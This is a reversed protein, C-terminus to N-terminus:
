IKFQIDLQYRKYDTEEEGESLNLGITNHFFTFGIKWYKFPQYGIGIEHGKADTGGGRFDSDTLAGVVADAELRRYIYRIEWSNRKKCKGIKFGAMWGTDEKEFDAINDEYKDNDKLNDEEVGHNKVYNGFLSFPIENIKFKLETHLELEKFKHAYTGDDNVNNGFGDDAEVLTEYDEMHIFHYYGTGLIFHFRYDELFNFDLTAQGGLFASDNDNKEDETKKAKREELWFGGANLNFTIPDFSYKYKVLLGEPNLDTDWILEAKSKWFFPNKMKGGILNLGKLAEPHYDFYALDIWVGKSSFSGSLTQNTSVPDSSGSALRFGLDLEDNASVFIGLRARLRHRVRMDYGEKDIQEHRYRLDIKFETREGKFSFKGREEAFIMGTISPAFVLLSALLMTLSTKPSHRKTKKDEMTTEKSHSTKITKM